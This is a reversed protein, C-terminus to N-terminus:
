NQLPFAWTKPTIYEIVKERCSRDSHFDMVALRWMSTAWTGSQTSYTKKKQSKNQCGWGCCISYSDQEEEEKEQEQEQEQEQEEEQENPKLM